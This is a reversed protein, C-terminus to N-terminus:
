ARSASRPETAASEVLQRFAFPDDVPYILGDAVGRPYVRVLEGGFLVQVLYHGAGDAAPLALECTPAALLGPMSSGDRRRVFCLLERAQEANVVHVPWPRQPVPEAPLRDIDLVATNPAGRDLPKPVIANARLQAASALLYRRDDSFGDRGYHSALLLGTTGFVPIGLIDSLACVTYKGHASDATLCGLLRVAAVGLRQLVLQEALERFFATVTASSADIAWGGLVLLTSHATSHGILDLTKPGEPIAGSLLECLAHEFHDRGGVTIAGAITDRIRMLEPDNSESVFSLRRIGLLEASM